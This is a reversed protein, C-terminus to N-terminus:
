LHYELPLSRRNSNNIVKIVKNNIVKNNIVKNNIVKNNIVKNNIVKNNIVKYNIVKYNNNNITLHLASQERCQYIMPLSGPLM